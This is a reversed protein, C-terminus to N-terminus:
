FRIIAFGSRQNNQYPVAFESGDIQKAEKFNLVLRMKWYVVGGNNQLEHGQDDLFLSSGYQDGSSFFSNYLLALKDKAPIFLYSLNPNNMDTTQQKDMLGSWSSDNQKGPLFFLSLNGRAYSNGAGALKNFRAYGENNFRLHIPDESLSATAFFVEPDWGDSNLDYDYTNGYERLLLFGKGPVAVFREHVLNNSKLKKGSLSNFRYSTDFDFGQKEMSYHVVQVTKLATYHFKSLLGAFAEGTVNNISIAEDELQSSPTMKIEKYSFSNDDGCFHFLLFNNNFRSPASMLWQGNDALQIPCNSYNEIPYSIFDDQKMPQSFTPSEYLRNYVLDWNENFLLALIRPSSEPISEFCLFLIKRRDESRLLLFRSGNEVFPFDAIIKGAGADTGNQLFRKLHVLTKNQETLILLRDFYDNGAVLYEKLANDPLSLGWFSNTLRLRSDYVEFGTESISKHKSFVQKQKLVWYYDSTKGAVEYHQVSRDESFPSYLLQQASSLIPMSQLIAFILYAGFQKM